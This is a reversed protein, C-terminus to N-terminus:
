EFVGKMALERYFDRNPHLIRLMGDDRSQHNYVTLPIYKFRAGNKFCRAWFNWDEYHPGEREMYGGSKEWITKRFLSSCFLPNDQIFMEKTFPQMKPKHLNNDYVDGYVVDTNSDMAALMKHLVNPYFNDDSDMPIILDYKAAAIGENRAGALGKNKDYRLYRVISANREILLRIDEPLPQTSGDDVVIIEKEVPQSLCSPLSVSLFHGDNYTPLIISIGM